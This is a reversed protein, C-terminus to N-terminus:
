TAANQDREAIAQECRKVMADFYGNDTDKEIAICRRGTKIAAVVTTGSGATPDLVVDNENTYTKILYELLEVPKQTPHIGGRAVSNIRIISTPYRRGDSDNRASTYTNYSATQNIKGVRKAGDYPIGQGFQPNYVGFQDYFVLINEHARMPQRNANLHGVGKEKAWVLDYKFLSPNSAHLTYQFGGNATFVFPTTVKACSHLGRWLDPFSIVSDWRNRTTGYPLDAFVMDIVGPKIKPLIELCDANILTIRGNDLTVRRM